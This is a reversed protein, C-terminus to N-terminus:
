CEASKADIKATSEALLDLLVRSKSREAYLFALKDYGKTMDKEHLTELLNIIDEYSLVNVQGYLHAKQEKSQITSRMGELINLASDNLEVAKKYEGMQEYYEAMGVVIRWDLDPNNLSKAIGNASDYNGKAENLKGLMIQDNALNLLFHVEEVKANMERCIGLGRLHYEEARPYDKM